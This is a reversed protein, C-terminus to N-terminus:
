IKTVISHCISCQAASFNSHSNKDNTKSITEVKFLLEQMGDTIMKANLTLMSCLM